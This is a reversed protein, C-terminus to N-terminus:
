NRIHDQYKAKSNEHCYEDKKGRAAFSDAISLLIPSIAIHLQWGARRTMKAEIYVMVRGM